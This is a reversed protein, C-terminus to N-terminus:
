PKVVELKITLLIGEHTVVWFFRRKAFAPMKALEIPIPLVTSNGDKRPAVEERVIEEIENTVGM